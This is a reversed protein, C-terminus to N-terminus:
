EGERNAGAVCAWCVLVKFPVPMTGFFKPMKVTHGNPCKM